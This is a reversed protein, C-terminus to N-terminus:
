RLRRLGGQAGHDVRGPHNDMGIQAACRQAVGSTGCNAFDGATIAVQFIVQGGAFPAAAM